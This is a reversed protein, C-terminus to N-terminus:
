HLMASAIQNWEEELSGSFRPKGARGYWYSANSSDGEKRHLYAHVWAGDPGDDQQAAQHAKTWEGKADWWLGALACSLEGPAEAVTLSARFEELNMDSALDVLLRLPRLISM